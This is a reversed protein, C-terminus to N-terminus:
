IIRPLQQWLLIFLILQKQTVKLIDGVKSWKGRSVGDGEVADLDCTWGFKWELQCYSTTHKILKWVHCSMHHRTLEGYEPQSLFIRSIGRSL